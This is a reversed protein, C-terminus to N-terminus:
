PKIARWEEQTLIKVHEEAYACANKHVEVTHAPLIVYLPKTLDEFACSAIQTTGERVFCHPECEGSHMHPKYKYLINNIYVAGASQKEWWATDDFAGDCVTTLSEPFIIEELDECLCFACREIKTLSQPLVLHKSTHQDMFASEGIIKVDEPIQTTCCGAVLCNDKKRIIANCDNRSDYYPNDPHVEIHQLQECGTFLDVGIECVSAPITISQLHPCCMFAGSHIERLGDPMVIHQLYTCSFAEQGIRHISNPLIISRLDRCQQLAQDCIIRTGERVTLHGNNPLNSGKWTFLLDNYYVLGDDQQKMWATYNLADVNIDVVTSPLVLDSLHTCGHFCGMPIYEVGEPIVISRLQECNSFAFNNLRRLTTPLIIKQLSKCGNFACWGLEELGEPLTIQKLRTCGHFASEIVKVYEPLIVETLATCDECMSIPLEHISKPLRIRQLSTCDSFADLGIQQVSDPIYIEKLQRCAEFASLGIEELTEPLTIATLEVCDFFADTALRVVPANHIFAPITIEGRYDNPLVSYNREEENWQYKIGDHIFEMTNKQLLYQFEEYM